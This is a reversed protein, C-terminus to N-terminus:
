SILLYISSSLIILFTITGMCGSSKPPYARNFPSDFNPIYEKIKEYDPNQKLMEDYSLYRRKSKSKQQKSQAKVSNEGRRIKNIEKFAQEIDNINESEWYKIILNRANKKNDEGKIRIYMDYTILELYRLESEEELEWHVRKHSINLLFKKEEQNM